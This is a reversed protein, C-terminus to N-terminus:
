DLTLANSAQIAFHHAAAPRVRRGERAELIGRQLPSALDAMKGLSQIADDAMQRRCSELRHHERPFGEHPCVAQKGPGMGFNAIM